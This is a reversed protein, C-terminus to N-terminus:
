NDHAVKRQVALAYLAADYMHETPSQPRRPVLGRRRLRKAVERKYLLRSHKKEMAKATSPLPRATGFVLKRASATTIMYCPVNLHAAIFKVAGVYQAIAYLFPQEVAVWFREDGRAHARVERRVLAVMDHLRRLFVQESEDARWVIAGWQRVDGTPEALAWAGGRKAPVDIGLVWASVHQNDGM